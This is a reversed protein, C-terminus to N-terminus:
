CLIIENIIHTPSEGQSKLQGAADVQESFDNGGWTGLQRNGELKGAQILM